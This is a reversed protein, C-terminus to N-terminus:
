VLGLDCYARPIQLYLLAQFKFLFLVSRHCQVGVNGAQLHSHVYFFLNGVPKLNIDLVVRM